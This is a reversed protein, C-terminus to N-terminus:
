FQREMDTRRRAAVERAAWFSQNARPRVLQSRRALRLLAGIPTVLGFYVIGMVLPTTIKAMAAALGMWVRYVPGLRAPVLLATVLLIGGLGGPALAERPHGRWAALAALALFAAGVTLGFRRGEGSSLRTSVAAAL